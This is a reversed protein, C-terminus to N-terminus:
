TPVNHIGSSDRNDAAADHPQGGRVTQALAEGARAYPNELFLRAHPTVLGAVIAAYQVAAEVVFRSRHLRAQGDGANALHHLEADVVSHGMLDASLQHDRGTLILNRSEM